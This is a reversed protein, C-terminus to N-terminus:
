VQRDMGERGGNLKGLQHIRTGHHVRVARKLSLM